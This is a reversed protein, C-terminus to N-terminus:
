EARAFSILRKVTAILQNVNPETDARSLNFTKNTSQTDGTDADVTEILIRGTMLDPSETPDPIDIILTQRRDIKAM